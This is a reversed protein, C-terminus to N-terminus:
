AIEEMEIGLIDILEFLEECLEDLRDIEDNVDERQLLAIEPDGTIRPMGSPWGSFIGKPGRAIRNLLGGSRGMEWIEGILSEYRNMLMAREM